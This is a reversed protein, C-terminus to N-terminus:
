VGEHQGSEAGMACKKRTLRPSSINSRIHSPDSSLDRRPPTSRSLHLDPRSSPVARTTRLRRVIRYGPGRFLSESSTGRFFLTLRISQSKLVENTSHVFFAPTTTPRFFIRCLAISSLTSNKASFSYPVVAHWFVVARSSVTTGGYKWAYYTSYYM